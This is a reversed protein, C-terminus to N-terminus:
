NNLIKQYRQLTAQILTKLEYEECPKHIYGFEASKRMREQVATLPLSSIYVVPVRFREYILEAASIGDMQGKLRIDMLVLDPRTQEVANISDEGTTVKGTVRYGLGELKYQLDLATINEDEVILIHPSCSTTSMKM